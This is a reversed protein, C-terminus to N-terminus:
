RYDKRTYGFYAGVLMAAIIAMWIISYLGKIVRGSDVKQYGQVPEITYVEEVPQFLHNGSRELTFRHVVLTQNGEEQIIKPQVVHTFSKYGGIFYKYNDIYTWVQEPEYAKSRDTNTLIIDLIKDDDKVTKATSKNHNFYIYYLMSVVLYVKKETLNSIKRPDIDEKLIESPSKTDYVELFHKPTVVKKVNGNEDTVEETVVNDNDVIKAITKYITDKSVPVFNGQDDRVLPVLENQYFEEAKENFVKSSLTDAVITWDLKGVLNDPSPYTSNDEKFQSNIVSAGERAYIIEANDLTKESIKSSSRLLGPVIYLTKETHEHSHDHGEHHLVSQQEKHEGHDHDHGDDIEFSKGDDIVKYSPLTSPAKKNIMYDNEKSSNHNFYLYKQLNKEQKDAILDVPDNDRKAFVDILQYPVFLWSIAQWAKASDKKYNYASALFDNQRETFTVEPTSSGPRVQWKPILYLLDQHDNLYFKEADLITKSNYSDYPIELEKAIANSAPTTFISTVNGAVLLPAFTIIPAIMALKSSGKIAILIVMLGFILYAVFFSFFGSVYWHNVYSSFPYNSAYFIIMGLFVSFSYFVGLFVFFGLKTLIVNKRSISKSFILIDMGEKALDKFLNLAKINAFIVALLLNIALNIYSIILFTNPDTQNRVGVVNGIITLIITILFAIIPIIITSKKKFVLIALFKSYLFSTQLSPNVKSTTQTAEM